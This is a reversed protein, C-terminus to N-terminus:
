VRFESSPRRLSDWTAGRPLTRRGICSVRTPLDGPSPFPLRDLMRAQLIGQASSGPPSCDVPGRLTPCLLMLPPTGKTHVRPSTGARTRPLTQM